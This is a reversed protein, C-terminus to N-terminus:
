FILFVFNLCHHDSIEGIDFNRDNTIAFYFYKRNECLYNDEQL